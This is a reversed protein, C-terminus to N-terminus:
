RFVLLLESGAAYGTPRRPRCRSRCRRVLSPVAIGGALGPKFTSASACVVPPEDVILFYESAHSRVQTVGISFGFLRMDDGISGWFIPDLTTGASASWGGTGIIQRNLAVMFGPFRRPLEGRVLIM